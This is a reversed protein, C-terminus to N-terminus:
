KIVADINLEHTIYFTREKTSEPHWIMRVISPDFSVLDDVNIHESCDPGKAMVVATPIEAEQMGQNTQLEETPPIIIGGETTHEKNEVKIVIRNGLPLVKYKKAENIKIIEQKRRIKAQRKEEDRTIEERSKKGEAKMKNNQNVSM